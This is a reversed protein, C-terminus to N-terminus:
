YITNKEINNIKMNPEKIDQIPTIPGLMFVWNKINDITNTDNTGGGINPILSLNNMITITTTNTKYEQITNTNKIDYYKLLTKNKLPNFLNM